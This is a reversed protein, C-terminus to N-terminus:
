ESNTILLNSKKETKTINHLHSCVYTANNTFMAGQIMDLSSHLIFQHLYALEDAGQAGIEAEYIPENKGVIMFHMKVLNARVYKSWIPVFSPKFFFFDRARNVREKM